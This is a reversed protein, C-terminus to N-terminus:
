FPPELDVDPIFPGDVWEREPQAELYAALEDMTETTMEDENM